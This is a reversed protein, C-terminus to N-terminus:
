RSDLVASRKQTLKWDQLFIVNGAEKEKKGFTVAYSFLQFGIFKKKM